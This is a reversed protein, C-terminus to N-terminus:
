GPMAYGSVGKIIQHMKTKKGTKEQEEADCALQVEYKLDTFTLKVPNNTLKSKRKAMEILEGDMFSARIDDDRTQSM